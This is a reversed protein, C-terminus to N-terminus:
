ASEKKFQLVDTEIYKQGIKKRQYLTEEKQFLEYCTKEKESDVM